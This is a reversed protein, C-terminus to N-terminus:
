GRCSPIMLRGPPDTLKPQSRTSRGFMHRRMKMALKVNGSDDRSRLDRLSLFRRQFQVLLMMQLPGILIALCLLLTMALHLNLPHLLMVHNGRVVKGTMIPEQLSNQESSNWGSSNWGSVNWGSNNWGQDGEPDNWAQEERHPSRSKSPERVPIPQVHYSATQGKLDFVAIMITTRPM